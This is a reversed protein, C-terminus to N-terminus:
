IEAWTRIERNKPKLGANLGTNLAVSVIHLRSPIRERGRGECTSEREREIFLSLFYIFLIPGMSSISGSGFDSGLAFLTVFFYGSKKRGQGGVELTGWLVHVQFHLRCSDAEESLSFFLPTLFLQFAQVFPLVSWELFFQLFNKKSSADVCCIKRKFSFYM